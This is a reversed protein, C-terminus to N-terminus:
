ATPARAPASRATAARAVPSALASRAAQTSVSANTSRARWTTRGSPKGAPCQGGSDNSLALTASASRARARPLLAVAAHLSRASPQSAKPM